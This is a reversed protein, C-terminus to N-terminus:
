TMSEDYVNPPVKFFLVCINLGNIHLNFYRKNEWEQVLSKIYTMNFFIKTKYSTSQRSSCVVRRLTVAFVAM